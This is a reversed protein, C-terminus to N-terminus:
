QTAKLRLFLRSNTDKPVSFDRRQCGLPVSNTNTSVISVVGNSNPSITTWTGALNTTSQGIITLNTDNTRVVATLTVNSGNLSITPLSVKDNTNTGGLAYKMLYALGDTGVYTPNTGFMDTFTPGASATVNLVVQVDAAADYNLNGAQKATITTTGIGVFNLTNGGTITAVNTNSSTFTVPLGSSSTAILLRAADGVKATAPDLGFTITQSIKAIFLTGSNTGSYNNENITAVVAYSGGATPLNTLGNYTVVTNLNAPDTIVTVSKPNGDYTQALGGLTLNATITKVSVIVQGTGGTGGASVNNTSSRAGGGGGGPLGGSGGAVSSNTVGTGGNGGGLPASGGVSGVASGGNAGYGAGSGGGGSGSASGIAGNGGAYIVDGISNNATGVGGLGYRTASSNGVASEGGAGGKALVPLSNTSNVSNFWSDGGSVTTDNISSNNIGGVGVNIYYTTGPTVSYNIKKAYAGGSGGGGYEVSGTDPTRLASGGAGGAGWCEVQVATVNAPCVWTGTTKNTTSLSSLNDSVQITLNAYGVRGSSNTASITTTYTGSATPTGYILGSDYLTLGPPLLGTVGFTAESDNSAIQYSVLSNTVAVLNLNSIIQPATTAPTFVAHITKGRAGSLDATFQITGSANVGSVESDKSSLTGTRNLKVTILGGSGTLSQTPDAIGVSISNYTERVIVSCSKNVTLLDATGGTSDWFNAAVIGLAPNKVAQVTATNSLITTQPNYAYGKVEPPTMAPLLTYAYTAGSPSSGHKFILRLYNNTYNNTNSDTPHVDTWKGSSPVFEARLNTPRDPFYYGGVGEIACSKPSPLNTGWNLSRPTAVGDVWLNVSPMNSGMRRNEVTTDVINASQCTIGAGLCVVEKELMFYTKKARLTSRNTVSGQVFDAPHLIMGAVGYGSVEAGGAWNEEPTGPDTEYNQESTTGTLHYWDMTPWIDDTFHTDTAGVYLSTMGDATNWGKDNNQTSSTNRMPDWNCTRSSSLSLGLSFNARHAVVRDISPFMYQGVAPHPSNAFATMKGKDTEPIFSWNAVGQMATIGDDGAESQTSTSTTYSRGRIMHMLAGHYYFPMLGQPIWASYVKSSDSEALAWASGYLLNTVNTVAIILDLGYSGNEVANWHFIYGGDSYFGDGSTVTPFVRLLNTRGETLKDSSKYLIGNLTMVFAAEAINSGTLASWNYASPWLSQGNPGGTPSYYQLKDYYSKIQSETLAPYVLLATNAFNEAGSIMWHYWNDTGATGNTGNYVNTVMWDLGNAVATALTANGYYASTPTAYAIAMMELRGFTDKMNTSSNTSRTLPLDSWLYFASSTPNTNIGNTTNTWYKAANSNISTSTGGNAVLSDRWKARLVDFADNQVVSIVYTKTTTGDHATVLNTIVNTGVQLRIAGSAAGSNVIKGNVKVTANSDSVTPTVQISVLNSVTATYSVTNSSFTPSLSGSSLVLNSLNANSSIATSSIVLTLQSTGTGGANSASLTVNNTGASAPIGSILGTSPNNTLGAPLNSAGFSTPSNSAMIQYSFATGVTGSAANTSTIGPLPLPQLRLSNNSVALQYGSVATELTALSTVSSGSILTYTSSNTPIGTVRVKSGAELSVAAANSFTVTGPNTLAIELIANTKVTVASSGQGALVLTGEQVISTGTYSNSGSLKLTGGGMKTWGFASNTTQNIDTQIDLTSGTEIQLTGSNRFQLVSAVNNSPSLRSFTIRSNNALYALQNAVGTVTNTFPAPETVGTAGIKYISGDAVNTRVSSFEYSSGNTVNYSKGNINGSTTTLATASSAFVLDTYSGGSSSANPVAGLSWSTPTNLSSNPGSFINPPAPTFTMTLNLSGSGGSNTATIIVTFTGSQNAAGSITGSGNNFSLGSPLTGSISYSDPVTGTYTPTYNFNIGAQGSATNSSTFTPKTVVPIVVGTPMAWMSVNDILWNGTNAGTTNFCLRGLNNNGTLVTTGDNATAALNLGYMGVFVSNMFVAFSNTGLTRYSGDPGLYNNTNIDSDNAFLHVTQKNTLAYTFNNTTSGKIAYAPNTLSGFQNFELTAIRKGSSGGATTNNTNWAVLAITLPNTGTATPTANNCLEFSTALYSRGSSGVNFELQGSTNTSSDNFWAVKGNIGGIISNGASNTVQGSAKIGSTTSSNSTVLPIAAGISYSEFSEYLDVTPYYSPVAPGGDFVVGVESKLLPKLGSGAVELEFCGIDLNSAPRTLGRIDTAAVLINTAKNLIPSSATPIKYNDFSNTILPSNTTYTSNSLGDWGYKSSSTEYIYNAGSGGLVIPTYGSVFSTDRNIASTTVSSGGHWVNNFMQVNTPSTAVYVGSSNTYSDNSLFGLNMQKCSVFTNNYIKANNAPQYSGTNGIGNAPDGPNYDSEGSMVCLAARIGDGVVNAIYNNRVIHDSGIVRIGGQNPSATGLVINTGNTYYGGGFIFNGEVTSGNGSRFCIGGQSELITNNFIKNGKSKISIIEPEGATSGDTRWISRYFVNGEVTVRMDFTQVAGVGIRISEYGNVNGAYRTGFYCHHIRHNRPVDIGGESIDPIVWVTVNSSSEPRDNFSCYEITNNFGGLRIWHVDEGSPSMSGCGTFRLQSFTIYKSGDDARVIDGYNSLKGCGSTFDVGAFIIGRGTFLLYSPANVIVGGPDVAYIKIPNSIAVDDSAITSIINKNLSGYTGSQMRVIDGANLSPLANFDAANTVTYTVALGCNVFFLVVSIGLLSRSFPSRLNLAVKKM